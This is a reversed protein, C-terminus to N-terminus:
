PRPGLAVLGQDVLVLLVSLVDGGRGGLRRGAARERRRDLRQPILEQGHM